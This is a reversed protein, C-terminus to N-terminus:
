PGKRKYKKVPTILAKDVSWNNKYIRDWVTRYPISYKECLEILLKTKGNHQIFLNDRRNRAQEKPTIWRCNEKYYGKNNNIRDISHNETPPDGMDELFNEFRLWQQCVNIERGGYDKYRKNKPNNCRQIIQAWTEYVKSKGNKSNHGHKTIIEKNFCGCSQTNGNKLSNSRVIVKSRDKCNCRCLWYPTGWKDSGAREIVDLRGFKKGILNTSLKM